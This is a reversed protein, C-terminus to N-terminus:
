IATSVGDYFKALLMQSKVKDIYKQAEYYNTNKKSKEVIENLSDFEQTKSEERNSLSKKLSKRVSNGVDENIDNISRAVAKKTNLSMDLEYSVSYFYIFFYNMLFVVILDTWLNNFRSRSIIFGLFFAWGQPVPMVAGQEPVIDMITIPSGFQRYIPIPIPRPHMVDQFPDPFISTRTEYSM